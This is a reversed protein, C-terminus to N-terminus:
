HIFFFPSHIDIFSKFIVLNLLPLVMDVTQICPAHKHLQDWTINL